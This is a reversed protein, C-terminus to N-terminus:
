KYIAYLEDVKSNLEKIAEILLPALKDYKVALFQDDIPATTVAEPLVKNVEQASVGVQTKKEYGLDQAMKNPEFKFGNLTLVKDLAYDINGLKNKLRDDSYYATIDGTARIEGGSGSASTGVGLSNVRFNSSTGLDQPANITVEGTSQSVTIRNSTGYLATVGGGGGGSGSAGQSGTYGRLGQDGKSGTYGIGGITVPFSAHRDHSPFLCVM